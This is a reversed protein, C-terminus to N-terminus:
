LLPTLIIVNPSTVDLPSNLVGKNLLNFRTSSLLGSCNGTGIITENVFL